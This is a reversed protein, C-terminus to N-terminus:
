KDREEQINCIKNNRKQSYRKIQTNDKNIEAIEAICKKIAEQYDENLLHSINLEFYGPAWTLSILDISQVILKAIIKYPHAWGFCIELIM